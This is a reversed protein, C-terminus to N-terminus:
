VFSIWTSYGANNTGGANFYRSTFNSAISVNNYKYVVRNFSTYVSSADTRNLVGSIGLSQYDLLASVTVMGDRKFRLSTWDTDSTSAGSGEFVIYMDTQSAFGSLFTDSLLGSIWKNSNFGSNVHSFPKASTTYSNDGDWLIGSQSTTGNNTAAQMGGVTAWGTMSHSVASKGSGTTYSRLANTQHIRFSSKFDAYQRTSGAPQQTRGTTSGNAVPSRDAYTDQETISVASGRGDVAQQDEFVDGIGDAQINNQAIKTM